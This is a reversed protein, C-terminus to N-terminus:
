MFGIFNKDPYIEVYKNLEKIDSNKIDKSDINILINQVNNIEKFDDLKILKNDGNFHTYNSIFNTNELTFEM